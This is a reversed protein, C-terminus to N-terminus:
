LGLLKELGITVGSNQGVAKVALLVGPVFSERNLSDQRITLLQGSTGFRVEQHAVAGKMRLSHVRIGSNSSAGRANKLNEVQTPDASWDPKIAELRSLTELATGSPADIKEDHHMELIEASDFHPAAIEALKMMVVASISFNSVIICNSKTFKKELSTITKQSIGSTGVVAHISNQALLELNKEAASAETFDIVVDLNVGDDLADALGSYHTNNGGANNDNANNKQNVNELNGNKSDVNRYNIDMQAVLELSPDGAVAKSVVAGVKGLAGSVGVKLSAM